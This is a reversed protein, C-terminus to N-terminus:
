LKVTEYLHKSPLHVKFMLFYLLEDTHCYRFMDIIFLCLLKFSFHLQMLSAYREQNVIQMVLLCENMTDPKSTKLDM